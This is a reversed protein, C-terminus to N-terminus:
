CFRGLQSQYFDQRIIEAIEELDITVTTNGAIKVDRYRHNKLVPAAASEASGAATPQIYGFGEMRKRPCRDRNPCINCKSTMKSLGM